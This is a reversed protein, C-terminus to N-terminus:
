EGFDGTTEIVKRKETYEVHDCLKCTRSWRPEQKEPWDCPGRWDSGMTGPPDGDSHGAPYIIPDYIAKEWQHVCNSQFSRVDDRLRQAEMELQVSRALSKKVEERNM